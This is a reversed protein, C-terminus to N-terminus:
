KISKNIRSYKDMFTVAAMYNIFVDHGGAEWQDYAADADDQTDFEFSNCQNARDIVFIKFM